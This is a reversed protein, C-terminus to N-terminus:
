EEIILDVLAKEGTETDVLVLVSDTLEDVEFREGMTDGKKIILVENDETAIYITKEKEQEMFGMFSLTTTFVEVAPPPIVVPPKVITVPPKKIRVPKPKEIPSFVDRKVGPYDYIPKALSEPNLIPVPEKGNGVENKVVATGRIGLLDFSYSFVYIVFLVIVIIIKKRNFM